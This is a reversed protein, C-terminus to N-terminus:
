DRRAVAMLSQGIPPPLRSEIRSLWPIVLRDYLRAEVETITGRRLVRGLLLWALIGPFNSYSLQVPTWGTSSLVAELSLRTYRRHHGFSRDLTGFLRPVAPVFLLLHGGRKVVDAAATLFGDDDAVHELVNVAVLSDAPALGFSELDGLRAEFKPFDGFRSVLLAHASRDPEIAILKSVTQLTLIQSSFTGIGAGVELVTGRLYPAFRSLLWRYYNSATRMAGLESGSYVFDDAHDDLIRHDTVSM